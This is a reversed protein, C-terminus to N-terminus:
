DNLEQAEKWQAIDDFSFGKSLLQQTLKQQRPWGEPLKRYASSRLVREAAKDVAATVRDELDMEELLENALESDVGKQMLASRIKSLGVGRSLQGRIVSEAYGRDDLLMAEVLYVLTDEVMNKYETTGDPMDVAVEDRPYGKRYLKDRIQSSNRSYNSAYWTSSKVAHNNFDCYEEWTLNRDEPIEIERAKKM